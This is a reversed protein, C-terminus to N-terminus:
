APWCCRFSLYKWANRSVSGFFRTCNSRSYLRSFRRAERDSEEPRFVVSRSRMFRSPAGGRGPPAAGVAPARLDERDTGGGGVPPGPVEKGGGGNLRLRSPEAGGGGPVRGRIAGRRGPALEVLAGSGKPEPRPVLEPRVGRVRRDADSMRSRLSRRSRSEPVVVDVAGLGTAGGGGAEVTGRQAIPVSRSRRQLTSRL